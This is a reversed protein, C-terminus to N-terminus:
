VHSRKGLKKYLSKAPINKSEVMLCIRELQWQQSLAECQRALQKGLGLGRFQRSVALNALVAVTDEEATFSSMKALKKKALILEQADVGVCAALRGSSREEAVLLKSMFKKGGYRARLDQEELRVLENKQGKPIPDAGISLVRCETREILAPPKLALSCLQQRL